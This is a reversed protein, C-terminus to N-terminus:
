VIEGPLTERRSVRSPPIEISEACEFLAVVGVEFGRLGYGGDGHDLFEYGIWWRLM